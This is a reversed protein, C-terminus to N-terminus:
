DPALSDSNLDFWAIDRGKVCSPKKNTVFYLQAAAQM